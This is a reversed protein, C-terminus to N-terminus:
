ALMAALRPTLRERVGYPGASVFRAALGIRRAHAMGLEPGLVSLATALADAHMCKAHLVSVSVLDHSIPAGTRPDISHSYRRGDADFAHEASGSTAVALGHLAIIMDPLPAGEGLAPPRELAVWWPTGDPKAGEGRLEGGIEVLFDSFGADRVVDCLRDVAFGKAVSSLDLHVGGPQKATKHVSDLVIRNWGCQSRVADLQAADPLRFREAGPGFGWLSVLRGIAPDYAGDTDRAVALAYELVRYFDSPLGRWSGAPARNFGSLDSGAEWHSMEAVIRALTREIEGRVEDIPCDGTAALKISWRTGMTQGGLTHVRAGRPPPARRVVHLPVAVRRALPQTRM